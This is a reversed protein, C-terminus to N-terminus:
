RRGRRHHAPAHDAPPRQRHEGQPRGAANVLTSKGVNPRGFVAVFGSRFEGAAPGRQPSRDAAAADTASLCRRGTPERRRRSRRRSCSACACSARGGGGAACVIEPDGFESLAQLCLGCPLCDRGDAAAVAVYRLEREGFAVLAALAAREACLGAPYSANEVNVGHHSRGSPGVAVAGVAFGSYPAYAREAVTVAEQFLLREALDPLPELSRRRSVDPVLHPVARRHDRHRPRGRRGGGAAHPDRGPRPEPRRPRGHVARHGLDAARLRDAAVFTVAVWAAFAVAAHASPLGGHFATGRHTM